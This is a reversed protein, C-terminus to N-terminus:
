TESRRFLYQTEFMKVVRLCQNSDASCACFSCSSFLATCALGCCLKAGIDNNTTKVTCSPRGCDCAANRTMAQAYCEILDFDKEESDGRFCIGGLPVWGQAIHENVRTCINKHTGYIVNYELRSGIPTLVIDEANGSDGVLM